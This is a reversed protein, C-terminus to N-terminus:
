AMPKRASIALFAAGFSTVRGLRRDSPGMLRAALGCPPYYVAGEPSEVLLGTSGALERLETGTRFRVHRWIRNGLWARVRREAAWASWRGLEGVIIRGGPRVVRGIERLASRGDPVFCLLTIAIALDFAEPPFPLSRTTAIALAIDAGHGRARERAARIMRPSSDIATVKAGRKWLEIALKGDGCGVDLVRRGAIDGVLELILSEEIADTVRGLTSQRWRAYAAGLESNGDDIDRDDDM